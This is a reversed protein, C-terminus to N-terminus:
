VAYDRLIDISTNFDSESFIELTFVRKRDSNRALLAILDRLVDENLGSLSQHDKGDIIGHVHFVKTRKLYRKYYEELDFEGLIIHGIDLCISLNFRDVIDDVLDFPYSLTEVCLLEPDVCKLLEEVSRSLNTKWRPLDDTPVPKWVDGEFHLLYGFPNVQNMREIVRRCKGVASRRVVEDAHGLPADLPLHVTYTLDHEAALSILRDVTADDPINSIEDSEFLVLEIDDVKDALYEVNPIIDAPIIYSSTGLRFPFTNKLTTPPTETPM